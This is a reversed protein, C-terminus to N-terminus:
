KEEIQNSKKLEQRIKNERKRQEVTSKLVFLKIGTLYIGYASFFFNFLLILGAKQPVLHWKGEGYQQVCAKLLDDEFKSWAGKRVGSSGEMIDFRLKYVCTTQKPETESCNTYSQRQTELEKLYSIYIYSIIIMGTFWTESSYILGDIDHSSSVTGLILCEIKYYSIICSFYPRESNWTRM